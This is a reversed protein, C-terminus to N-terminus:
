QNPVMTIDFSYLYSGQEAGAGGLAASTLYIPIGQFPDNNTITITQGFPNGCLVPASGTKGTWAATRGGLTVNGAGDGVSKVELMIIERYGGITALGVQDQAPLLSSITSTQSSPINLMLEISHSKRLAAGDTWVPDAIGGGCAAQFGGCSIICSNYHNSNAFSTPPSLLFKYTGGVANHGVLAVNVRYKLREEDIAIVNVTNLSM